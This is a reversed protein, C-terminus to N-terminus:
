GERPTRRNGGSAYLSELCQRIHELDLGEERLRKELEPGIAGGRRLVCELLKCLRDDRETPADMFREGGGAGTEADRDGGRWTVATFTQERMFPMGKRTRGRARVRLKHVGSSDAVFRASHRGDDEPQFSLTSQSGDPRTLEGWVLGTGELPIGSQTLTAQVQIGAGPEYGSQRLEARLSVNSYSQVILSYPLKGREERTPERTTPGALAHSFAEAGAAAGQAVAFRRRLENTVLSPQARRRQARSAHLRRAITRDIGQENDSSPELRPRSVKLLAHWTGGQDFRNPILQVPLVLRYYSVGNGLVYRMAPERLARWPELLLGSPTQLRFDVTRVFPSLLIVDVGTDGETLQFPIRHVDGEELQGDPDLVVQANSVGALIQLFYKQLLFRNDTGIAGTVLLFGGNNGSITQLAAASTNQPTGFGIAYTQANISAAVDSIYRPSNEMGDTLVALAKVDYNGTANDLIQRGEFIGDGISTNGAPDFSNGRILDLTNNRNLDSIGGTGVQLVQQVVQADHDYRVLGVGDGELMVDVFTEAAQQLSVHKSQGDGRDEAMSGSRDLVLAVAATKRAITNADITISWTQGSVPERVTVTQTPIASPAMGTRYIIWLRAPAVSSGTTPGVTVAINNAVLQAHMPAGGPAYELTITSSPSIVEFTIALPQERVMGMPGQPIDIFDLQQTLLTISATDCRGVELHQGGQQVVFGLTHWRAIMDEYGGIGRVWSEYNSTGQPIVENPRPVPWWNLGCAFFDAQWPLAMSASISGPTVTAHNIRFAESYFAAEVIPRNGESLGGAEIGPFFAGGVCAELAARDMGAPSVTAEPAPVGAWDNTFNSDDKWREMHAYQINTLASDDNILQPMNGGPRLRNFIATRMTPLTVPDSWNHAYTDYVWKIDRARQLIPYIDQTYTSSSPATALGADVMAQLVRDYLTTASDQHPAFKPPACIVWAGVVAPTANNARLTIAASVPGDSIDDYWGANGWFGIIANGGPSASMGAGGLVLLHNEDDSRMEGLPVTTVPDGSFRIVGNDFLRQQNPGTTTRAGPDITLDATPESNGRGPYTAKKNVLHVTWTIEAQADTIEEVSGDDHHAFVRFRAAQRKVRCQADKFGGVPEPRERLREPGIFFEPSNGVRAIGIAPHIRYTTAM